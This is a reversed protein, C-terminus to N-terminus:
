SAAEIRALLAEVQVQAGATVTIEAVVGDFPATLSHEMKMAELTLLKQGKTVHDGAAVAVAIVRGPMPSLISGDSLGAQGSSRPEWLTFGVREGDVSLVSLDGGFSGSFTPARVLLDVDHVGGMSDAVKARSRPPANLRFGSWSDWLGDGDGVIMTLEEAACAAMDALPLPLLATADLHREIFGTDIDGALFQPQRLCRAVFGLNSKVPWVTTHSCSTALYEAARERTDAHCIIKGLMPDYFPSVEDDTEYGM